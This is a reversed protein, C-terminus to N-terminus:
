KVARRFLRHTLYLALPLTVLSAAVTSLGAGVLGWFYVAPVITFALVLVSTFTIITIYHQKELALFLPNTTGIITKSVGYLTLVRLVPVAPLWASGLLFQVLPRALFFLPLSVALALLTVQLSTRLFLRKLQSPHGNLRTYIPFTVKAFVDGIETLPLSSLKYAYQYYGLPAEGLLRGVVIDDGHQYLYNFIGASTFWKSRSLIHKARDPQLAFQPRPRFLLFTLFVELTAAVLMAAILGVASHTILSLVIAMVSEVLTIFSYLWFEHHFRLDKHLRVVAPNIFGRVLPIFATLRLVSLSDPSNFFTAIIPSFILILGGVVSGRIISIVWATDIYPDIDQRRQILFVNIWTETVIELFALVLTAIGFVGFQAPLLIRALVFLRAFTILRNTWRLGFSWSLSPLLPLSTM